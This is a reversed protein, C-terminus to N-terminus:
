ATVNVGAAIKMELGITFVHTADAGHEVYVDAGAPITGTCVVNTTFGAANTTVNVNSSYTTIATGGASIAVLAVNANSAGTGAVVVTIQMSKPAMAAFAAFRNTKASAGAANLGPVLIRARYVPDDYAMNETAM